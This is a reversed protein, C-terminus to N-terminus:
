PLIEGSLSGKSHPNMYSEIYSSFNKGHGSVKQGKSMDVRLPIYTISWYLM